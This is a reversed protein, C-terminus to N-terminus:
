ISNVIYFRLNEGFGPFILPGAGKCSDILPHGNHVLFISTDLLFFLFNLISNQIHKGGDILGM